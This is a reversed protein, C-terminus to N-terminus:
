EDFKIRLMEYLRIKQNASLVQGVEAHCAAVYESQKSAYDQDLKKIEAKFETHIRDFAANQEDTLELYSRWDPHALPVDEWGFSILIQNWIQRL